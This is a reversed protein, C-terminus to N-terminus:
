KYVVVGTRRSCREQRYTVRLLALDIEIPVIKCNTGEFICAARADSEVSVPVLKGGRRACDAEMEKGTMRVIAPRSVVAKM